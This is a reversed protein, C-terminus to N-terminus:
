DYGQEYDSITKRIEEGEQGKEAGTEPNATV